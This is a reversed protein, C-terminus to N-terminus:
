LVKQKCLLGPLSCSPLSSESLRELSWIVWEQHSEQNNTCSSSDSQSDCVILLQPRAVSSIYNDFIWISAHFQWHNRSWSTRRHVDQVWINMSNIISTIVSWLDDWFGFRFCIFIQHHSSRASKNLLCHRSKLGAIGCWVLGWHLRKMVFWYNALVLIFM